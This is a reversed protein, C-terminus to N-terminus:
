PKEVSQKVSQPLPSIRKIIINELAYSRGKASKFFAIAADLDGMYKECQDCRMITNDNFLLWGTGDCDECKNKM